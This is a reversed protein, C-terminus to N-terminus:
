AVMTFSGLGVGGMGRGGVAVLWRVGGGLGGGEFRDFGEGREEVADEYLADFRLRFRRAPDEQRLAADPLQVLRLHQRHPRPPQILLPPPDRRAHRRPILHQNRLYTPAKIPPHPHPHPTILSILIPTLSLSLLLPPPPHLPLSSSVPTTIPLIAAAGHLHSLLLIRQEPVM